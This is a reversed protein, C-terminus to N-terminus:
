VRFGVAKLVWRGIGVLDVVFTVDARGKPSGAPLFCPRARQEGVGFTIAHSLVFEHSLAESFRAKLARSPSDFYTNTRKYRCRKTCTYIYLYLYIYIYYVHVIYVYVYTHDGVM